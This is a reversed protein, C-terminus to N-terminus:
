DKGPKRSRPRGPGSNTKKAYEKASNKDVVIATASVKKGIILNDYFLQRVRRATCGIIHAAQATNILSEDNEKVANM